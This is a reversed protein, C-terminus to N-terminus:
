VPCKWLAPPWSTIPAGRWSQKWPVFTRSRGGFEAETLLQCLRDDASHEGDTFVREWLQAVAATRPLVAGGVDLYGHVQQLHAAADREPLVKGCEPCAFTTAAAVAEEAVRLLQQDAGRQRLYQM